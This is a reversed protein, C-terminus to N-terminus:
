CSVLKKIPQRANCSLVVCFCPLIVACIGQPSIFMQLANTFSVKEGGLQGSSLAEPSYIAFAACIPGEFM